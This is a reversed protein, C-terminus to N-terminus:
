PCRFAKAVAIVAAKAGSLRLLKLFREQPPHGLNIHVKRVISELRKKEEDTVTNELLGMDRSRTTAQVAVAPFSDAHKSYYDVDAWANRTQVVQTIRRCM